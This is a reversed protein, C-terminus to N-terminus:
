TSSTSLLATVTYTVNDVEYVEDVEDVRDVEDVWKLGNSHELKLQKRLRSDRHSVRERAL